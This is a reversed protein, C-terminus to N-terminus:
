LRRGRNNDVHVTPPDTTVRIALSRARGGSVAKGRAEAVITGTEPITMSVPVVSIRVTLPSVSAISIEVPKRNVLVQARPIRTVAFGALAQGATKLIQRRTYM